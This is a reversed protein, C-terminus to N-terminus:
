EKAASSSDASVSDASRKARRAARARTPQRPHPLPGVRLNTEIWEVVEARHPPQGNWKREAVGAALVDAVMMITDLAILFVGSRAVEPTLAAISIDVANGLPSQPVTSIGITTAGFSRALAIMDVTERTRGQHSVGIIVDDSDVAIVHNSFLDPAASVAPIGAWNLKVAIGFAPVHAGGHGIVTVRRAKAIADIAQELAEFDLTRVTTELAHMQRKVISSALAQLGNGDAPSELAELDKSETRGLSQAIGQVLERFGPYGVARCFRTV